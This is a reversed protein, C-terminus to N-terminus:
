LINILNKDILKNVFKLTDITCQEKSVDFEDLLYKLINQISVPNELLEWIRSGINEMGYYEGNEISLLITEGDIQNSLVNSIRQVNTNIDIKKQV